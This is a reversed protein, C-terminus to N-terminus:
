FLEKKELKKFKKEDIDYTLTISTNNHKLETNIIDILFDGTIAKSILDLQLKEVLTIRENPNDDLYKMKDYFDQPNKIRIFHDSPVIHNQIDYDKHLFPVVGLQLMEAYKSTVWKDKTPLVLTYKTGKFRNDLDETEVYGKFQKYGDKFFDSWKGYIFSEQKEDLDLIYEKLIDFRWDKISTFPTLQLSVITFGYPKDIKPSLVKEGILNMKEIGSYISEVDRIVIDADRNFTEISKWKVTFDQQGIIRVPLNSTDRYHIKEKIYRPDTSILWWDLNSRNLYNVITSAYYLSMELCKAPKTPDTVTNLFGPQTSVTCYGQAMFGIGFDIKYNNMIVDGFTQCFEFRDSLDKSRPKINLINHEEFPNVIIGRPDLEYREEKSIKTLDNKSLLVIKTISKRRALTKIFKYYETSGDSRKLKNKNFKFASGMSYIAITVNSEKM